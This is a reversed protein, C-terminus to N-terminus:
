FERNCHNQLHSVRNRILGVFDQHSLIKRENPLLCPSLPKHGYPAQTSSLIVFFEFPVAPKRLAPADRRVTSLADPASAAISAVGAYRRVVLARAASGSITALKPPLQAAAM